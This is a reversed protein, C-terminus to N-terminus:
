DVYNYVLYRAVLPKLVQQKVRVHLPHNQYNQLAERDKLIVTLAVDFSDDVVPRGSPFTPGATVAIVGPIDAFSKSGEILQQQAAADGPQKLWAVVVHHIYGKGAMTRQPAACGICAAALFSVLLYRFIIQHM